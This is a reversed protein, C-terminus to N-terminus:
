LRTTSSQTNSQVRASRYSAFRRSSGRHRWADPSMCWSSRRSRCWREAGYLEREIAHVKKMNGCPKPDLLSYQKIQSSQNNCNYARFATCEPMGALMVLMMAMMVQVGDTLQLELKRRSPQRTRRPRDGVSGQIGDGPGATKASVMLICGPSLVSQMLRLNDGEVQSSGVHKPMWGQNDMGILMEVDGAPRALRNRFGKAQLLRREIDTLADTAVLTTILYVGMVKM